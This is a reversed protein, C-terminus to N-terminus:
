QRGGRNNNSMRFNDAARRAAQLNNITEPRQEAIEAMVERLVRANEEIRLLAEQVQRDALVRTRNLGGLVNKSESLKSSILDRDAEDYDEIIPNGNEDEISKVGSMMANILRGEDVVERRPSWFGTWAERFREMAGRANQRIRDVVRGVTNRNEETDGRGRLRDRLRDFWGFLGRRENENNGLNNDIEVQNNEVQVPENRGLRFDDFLNNGVDPGEEGLDEDVPLVEVEPGDDMGADNNEVGVVGVDPGEDMDIDKDEVGVPGVEPGEELDNEFSGVNVVPSKEERESVQNSESKSRIYERMKGELEDGYEERLESMLEQMREDEGEQRDAHRLRALRLYEGIREDVAAVDASEETVTGSLEATSAVSTDEEVVPEPHNEKFEEERKKMRFDDRIEDGEDRGIGMGRDMKRALENRRTRKAEREKWEEDSSASKRNPIENVEDDLELWQELVDELYANEEVGDRSILKIVRDNGSEHYGQVKKWFEESPGEYRQNTTNPKWGANEEPAEVGSLGNNKLFKDDLGEHKREPIYTYRTNEDLRRGSYSESVNDYGGGGLIGSSSGGKSVRSVGPESNGFAVAHDIKMKIAEWRKKEAEMDQPILTRQGDNNRAKESMSYIYV